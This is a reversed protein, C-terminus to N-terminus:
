GGSAASGRISDLFGQNKTLLGQLDAPLKTLIEADTLGPNGRVVRAVEPIIVYKILIPILTELGM